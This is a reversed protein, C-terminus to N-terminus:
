RASHCAAPNQLDASFRYANCGEEKTTEKSMEEAIAIVEDRKTPDLEVRVDVVLM